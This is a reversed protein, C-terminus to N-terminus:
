HILATPKILKRLSKTMSNSMIQLLDIVFKLSVQKYGILIFFSMTALAGFSRSKLIKREIFDSLLEQAYIFKNNTWYEFRIGLRLFWM